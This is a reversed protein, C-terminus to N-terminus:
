STFYGLVDVLAHTRTPTYITVSGGDGISGIAANAVTQGPGTFNLSSSSGSTGRGTPFLQLYGASTTDTAVPNVFVARVGTAPVGAEGLPQLLTESGAVLPSGSTRTDMLRGPAVPVFLGDTGSAATGDTFWGVVDVIVDTGSSTYVEVSGHAGVPVTVLNAVTQGAATLNLNSTTGLATAGATPVVQVFGAKRSQTATVTLVVSSVGGSPVGGQGLVTVPIAEGPVPQAPQVFVRQAVPPAGLSECPRRDGDSDLGAVDGYWPYYTWFWENAAEWTAFDPCNKVNGPNFPRTGTPEPVPQTMPWEVVRAMGQRSRSDLLRTPTLARFRGEASSTAPRFYGQVDAVLHAGAVDYLTVRGGAGVPVSVLNAVTAGPSVNLNSSAGLTGEGTPVVQVYGTRAADTAVVNLVVATSDAPVAGGVVVVDLAAGPAPRGGPGGLGTRTDLIRSPALSAFAGTPAEGDVAHASPAVAVTAAVALAAISSALAHSWPRM